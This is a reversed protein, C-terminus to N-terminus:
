GCDLAWFPTGDAAKLWQLTVQSTVGTELKGSCSQVKDSETMQSLAEQVFVLQTWAEAVASDSAHASSTVDLLWDRTAMLSDRYTGYEQAGPNTVKATYDTAALLTATGSKGADLYMTAQGHNSKIAVFAGAVTSVNTVVVKDSFDAVGLDGLSCEEAFIGTLVLLTTLLKM